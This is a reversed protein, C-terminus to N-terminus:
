FVINLFCYVSATMLIFFLFYFVFFLFINSILILCTGNDHTDLDLVLHKSEPSFNGTGDVVGTDGGRGEQKEMLVAFVTKKNKSNLARGREVGKDREEAVKMCHEVNEFGYIDQNVESLDTNEDKKAGSIIQERGSQKSFNVSISNKYQTSYKPELDLADEEL